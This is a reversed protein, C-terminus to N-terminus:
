LFYLGCPSFKSRGGIFDLCGAWGAGIQEPKIRASSLKTVDWKSKRGSSDYFTLEHWLTALTIDQKDWDMPIFHWDTSSQPKNLGGTVYGPDKHSSYCDSNPTIANDPM